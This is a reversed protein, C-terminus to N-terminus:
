ITENTKQLIMTELKEKELLSIQGDKMSDDYEKKLASDNVQNVLNTILLIDTYKLKKRDMKGISKYDNKNLYSMMEKAGDTESYQSYFKSINNLFNEKKSIIYTESEITKVAATYTIALIVFVIGTMLLKQSSKKITIPILITFLFGMLGILPIFLTIFFGINKIEKNYLSRIVGDSDNFLNSYDMMLYVSFLLISVFIIMITKRITDMELLSKIM